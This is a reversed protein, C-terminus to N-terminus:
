IQRDLSKCSHLLGLFTWFYINIVPSELVANATSVFAMAFVTLAIALSLTALERNKLYHFQRIGIWISLGIILLFLITGILGTEVFLKLYYNDMVQYGDSLLHANRMSPAGTIGLGHGFLPNESIYKDFANEIIHIRTVTSEIGRINSGLGFSSVFHTFIFNDFFFNVAILVGIGVLSFRVLKIRRVVAILFLGFVTAIWSIRSFTFILGTALISIFLLNLIFSKTPISQSRSCLFTFCILLGIAILLGSAAPDGLTSSAKLYGLTTRYGIDGYSLGLSSMIMETFFHQAIAVIAIVVIGIILIKFLRNLQAQDTIISPIFLLVPFYFAISRFGFFGVVPPQRFLEVLLFLLWTIIVAENIGIKLNRFTLKGSLLSNLLWSLMMLFLLGEKVIQGYLGEVFNSFVASVLLFLMLSTLILIPRSLLFFFCCILLVGWSIITLMEYDLYLSLLGVLFFLLLSGTISLRLLNNEFHVHKLPSVEM